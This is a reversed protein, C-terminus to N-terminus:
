RWGSFSAPYFVVALEVNDPVKVTMVARVTYFAYNNLKVRKM